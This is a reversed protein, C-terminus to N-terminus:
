QKLFQLVLLLDYRNASRLPHRSPASLPPFILEIMLDTEPPLLGRAKSVLIIDKFYPKFVSFALTTTSM